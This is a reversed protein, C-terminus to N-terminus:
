IIELVMTTAHIISKAITKATATSLTLDTTVIWRNGKYGMSTTIRDGVIYTISYFQNDDIDVTSKIMLSGESLVKAKWSGMKNFIARVEILTAM